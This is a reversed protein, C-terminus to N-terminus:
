RLYSGQKTQTSVPKNENTDQEAFADKGKLYALIAGLDNNSLIKAQNQMVNKGSGGFSSDSRYSIISDEIDKADMNKLPTSGFPRKDANEYLEKGLSVSYRGKRDVGLKLIRNDKYRRPDEDVYVNVKENRDNAQKKAMEALEKGFEGRAEIYYVQSAAFANAVLFCALFSIKISKM